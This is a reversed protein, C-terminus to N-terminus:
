LICSKWDLLIGDVIIEINEHKYTSMYQAFETIIQSKVDELNANKLFNESVDKIIV